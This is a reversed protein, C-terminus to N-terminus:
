FVLQAQLRFVHDIHDVDTGQLGEVRYTYDAQLKLLHGVFYYNIGATWDDIKTVGFAASAPAIGQDFDINAYRFAIEPGVNKEPGLFYGAQAYWGTEIATSFSGATNALSGAPSIQRWYAEGTAFFGMYKFAVDGGFTQANYIPLAGTPIQPNAGTTTLALPNGRREPNFSYNLGLALKPDVSIDVDSQTYPMKGLPNFAVRAVGELGSSDDNSENAPLLGTSAPGIVVPNPTGNNRAEGNFAGAYWELLSDELLEGWLQVGVSRDGAISRFREVTSARDVFQLTTASGMQERSMPRKMQGGRIHLEKAFEHDIYADRLLSTTDAVDFMINYKTQQGFVYGDLKVRARRVDFSMRDDQATPLPAPGNTPGDPSVYTFRTQLYGGVTMAFDNGTTFTVGKGQKYSTTTQTGSAAAKSEQTRAKLLESLDAIERELLMNTTKDEARMQAGLSVLEKYEGETIVGRDKLLRLLRAEVSNKDDDTAALARSSNFAFSLSVLLVALVKQM